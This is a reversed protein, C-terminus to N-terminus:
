GGHLAALLAKEVPPPVMQSVDGNLRAVEKIVRSSVYTYKERAALFVTEIAPSLTKNMLAMQFEYEFDTVARLGRVVVKAGCAAAFNVLLGSFTTVEVNTMAGTSQRILSIRDETSFLAHKDSNHAVAIILRDFLGAARGIIDLHGNTIPDFSGPYIAIRMHGAFRLRASIDLGESLSQPM